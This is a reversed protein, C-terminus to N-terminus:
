RKIESDSPQVPPKEAQFAPGLRDQILLSPDSFSRASSILGRFPARIRINFIFPLAQLQKALQGGVRAILGTAVPEITGRSVGNFRIESVMEGDLKGNLDITMAEYAISKLADFAIGGWIGLDANSVQGVYALTGGPARSALSGGVIRGGDRDFVMPLTGDFTGTASINDFELKNILRAADLGAIDFTLHRAAEESFDLVTPRLTLTGGALPWRASDIAVKLGPLLRYHVVGDEVEIGPNVTAVTLLQDPATVLGLLDTFRIDTRVGTAPGFPAALSDAAVHFLGTSTVGDANWAIRGQGSLTGNV